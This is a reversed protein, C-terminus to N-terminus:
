AAGKKLRIARLPAAPVPRARLEDLRRALDRERRSWYRLRVVAKAANATWADAQKSAHALDARLRVESGRAPKPKRKGKVMLRGCGGCVRRDEHNITGCNGCRKTWPPNGKVIRYTTRKREM